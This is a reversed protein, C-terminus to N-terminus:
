RQETGHMVSFRMCESPQVRDLEITRSGWVVRMQETVASDYRIVIAWGFQGAVRGAVEREAATEARIGAWREPRDGLDLWTSVPQGSDRRTADPRLEQLTIRRNFRPMKM